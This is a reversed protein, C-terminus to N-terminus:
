KKATDEPPDEALLMKMDDKLASKYAGPRGGQKGVYLLTGKEPNISVPRSRQDAQMVFYIGGKKNYAFKLLRGTFYISERSEGEKVGNRIYQAFAQQDTMNPASDGSSQYVVELLTGSRETTGIRAMPTHRYMGTSKGSKNGELRIVGGVKRKRKDFMQVLCDGGDIREIVGYEERDAYNHSDCIDQNAENACKYKDLKVMEGKQLPGRKATSVAPPVLPAKGSLQEVLKETGSKDYKKSRNVAWAVFRATEENYGVKDGMAGGFMATLVREARIDEVDAIDFGDQVLPLIDERLDPNDFALKVLEARLTQNRTSM